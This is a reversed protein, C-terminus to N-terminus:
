ATISEFDLTLASPTASSASSEAICAPTMLTSCRLQTSRSTALRVPESLRLCPSLLVAYPDPDIFLKNESSM